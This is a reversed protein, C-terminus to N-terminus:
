AALAILAENRRAFWPKWPPDYRAYYLTGAPVLGERQVAGLLEAGFQEFRDEDWRGGFRRAAALHGPVARTTVRSNTPVPISAPDVGAPLVFSVTHTQAGPTAATAPEQLVPATMALRTGSTNNGSIYSVLPGFAVNGARVFDGAVEVQVLVYAPYRRVEFDAFRQEVSYPQQETM